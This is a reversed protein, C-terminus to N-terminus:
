PKKVTQRRESLWAVACPLVLVSAVLCSVIGIVMFLGLMNVGRHGGLLLAGFGALTTLAALVVARGTTARVKEVDKEQSFRHVWHVGFDVGCGFIIPLAVLNAFNYKQGTVAIIGHMWATGLGLPLLAWLTLAPRRFDLALFFIVFCAALLVSRVFSKRVGESFGYHSTPFGTIRPAASRIARVHRDLYERDNIDGDPYVLVGFKRGDKTIFRDRVDAPLTDKTIPQIVAGPRLQALVRTLHEYIDNETQGLSKLLAAKDSTNIDTVLNRTAKALRGLSGAEPRNGQTSAFQADEAADALTNLNGTLTEISVEKDLRSARQIGTWLAELRARYKEKLKKIIHIKETQDSPIYASLSEVRAVTPVGELKKRLKEAESLSDALVVSYNTALDTRNKLIEIGRVSEVGSPLLTEVGYDFHISGALPLSALALVVGGVTVPKKWKLLNAPTFSPMRIPEAKVPKKHWVCLAAPLTILSAAATLLVGVGAIIGLERFAIMNTSLLTFFAAATTVAGTFIGPGAGAVAKASAEASSLGASLEEQFRALMHIAFAMGLGFLIAAFYASVMTLRGAYVAAVGASWLLGVVLPLAAFLTSRLSRYILAFLFLVAAGAVVSALWVDRELIKLEDNCVAPMGTVVSKMSDFKTTEEGAVTRVLRTLPVVYAADQSDHRPRVFLLLLRPERGDKDMLYGDPTVGKVAPSMRSSIMKSAADLWNYTASKLSRASEEMVMTIADIGRAAQEPTLNDPMKGDEIAGAIVLPLNEIGSNKVIEEPDSPVRSLIQGFREIQDADLYLLISKEFSDIDVRHFVDRVLDNEMSLRDAIREAAKKLDEEDKGLLIVTAVFTSGFEKKLEKYKGYEVDDPDILADRNTTIYLQPIVLLSLVCMLASIILIAGPHRSVIRGLLEFLKVRM